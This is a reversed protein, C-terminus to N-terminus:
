PRVLIKAHAEPDGLADFAAPTGDLDVEGTILSSVGVLEEEGLARLTDAFEDATYGLVFRLELEKGIALMPEFRDEEMCVGVVVVRTDRMAGEVIGALVGPVGVCEFVVGPRPLPGVFRILPNSRDADAPWALDEWAQYPSTEAPDIVVDAGVQSALRRRAPSFDAAVIPSARRQRLAAIVALGIPGCGVVLPVDEPALRAKEVAHRGVALPETLAALETPLDAPVPLCLAEDLVVLEAYGGPVENSYGLAHIRGTAVSIPMSCVRTGAVLASTSATEVVEACFEHGMVLDRAPDLGSGAARTRRQLAVLADLHHRAHLDSGCIGCALVRALVQGPRPRPDPVEDVVLDRNRLVVARM